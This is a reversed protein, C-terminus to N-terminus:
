FDKFLGQIKSTSAQIFGTYENQIILHVNIVVRPDEDCHVRCALAVTASLLQGVVQFLQESGHSHRLWVIFLNSLDYEERFSEFM